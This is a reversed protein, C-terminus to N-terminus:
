EVPNWFDSLAGGVVALPASGFLGAFFRCIMITEINLAVGIGIEFSSM